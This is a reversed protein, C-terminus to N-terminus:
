GNEFVREVYDVSDHKCRFEACLSQWLLTLDKLGAADLETEDNGNFGIRYTGKGKTSVEGKKIAQGITM